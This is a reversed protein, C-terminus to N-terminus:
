VGHAMEHLIRFAKRSTIVLASDSQYVLSFHLLFLFFRIALNSMFNVM